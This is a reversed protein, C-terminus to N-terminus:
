RGQGNGAKQREWESSEHQIWSTGDYAYAVCFHRFQSSAVAEDVEVINSGWGLIIGDMGRTFLRQNETPMNKKAYETIWTDYAEQHPEVFLNHEDRNKVPRGLTLQELEVWRASNWLSFIGGPEGLAVFADYRPNGTAM